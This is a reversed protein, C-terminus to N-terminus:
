ARDVSWALLELQDLRMRENAIPDARRQPREIADARDDTRVVLRQVAAAIRIPQAARGDRQQRLDDRDGIDVIRQGAVAGVPRRDRMGDGQLHQEVFRAGALVVERQQIFEHRHQILHTTM